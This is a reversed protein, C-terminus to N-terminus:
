LCRVGCAILERRSTHSAICVVDYSGFPVTERCVSVCRSVMKPEICNVAIRNACAQECFSVLSTDVVIPQSPLLQGSSTQSSCGAALIAIAIFRM